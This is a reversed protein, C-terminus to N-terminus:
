REWRLMAGTPPGGGLWPEPSSEALGPWGLCSSGLTVEERAERGAAMSVSAM